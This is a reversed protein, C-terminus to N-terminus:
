IYKTPYPRSPVKKPSTLGAGEEAAKRKSTTQPTGPGKSGAPFEPGVGVPSDDPKEVTVDAKETTVDATQVPADAAADPTPDKPADKHASAGPASLGAQSM